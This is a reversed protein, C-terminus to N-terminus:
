TSRPFFFKEPTKIQAQRGTCAVLLAPLLQGFRGLTTLDVMRAASLTFTEDLVARLSAVSWPQGSAPPVAVLIAQPAECGPRDTHVALAAVENARPVVEAWDDVCLVSVPNGPAFAANGALVISVVGGPVKV